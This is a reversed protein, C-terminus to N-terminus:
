TLKAISETGTPENWFEKFIPNIQGFISKLLFFQVTHSTVDKINIPKCEAPQLEAKLADHTTKKDRKQLKGSTIIGAYELFRQDQTNKM